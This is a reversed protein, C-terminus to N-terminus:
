HNGEAIRQECTTFAPGLDKGSDSNEIGRDGSLLSPPQDSKEAIFDAVAVVTSHLTREM